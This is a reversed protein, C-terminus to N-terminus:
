GRSKSASIYYRREGAKDKESVLEMRLPKKLAGFIFGRVSHAQWGTAEM